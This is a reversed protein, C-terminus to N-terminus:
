NDESVIWVINPRKAAPAAPVAVPALVAVAALFPRLTHKTNMLIKGPNHFKALGSRM